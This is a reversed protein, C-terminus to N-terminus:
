NTKPKPFLESVALSVNENALSSVTDGIQLITISRYGSANPERHVILREGEVDVIWYEPIGVRGYLKAKTNMDHLLSSDSVEAVLLVDDASPTEAYASFDERTAMADPEPENYRGADGQIRLPLQVWVRRGDFIQLLAYFLACVLRSHNTGSGMKDIIMGEILEYRGTLAGIKCLNECEEVTWRKFAPPISEESPPSDIHIAM